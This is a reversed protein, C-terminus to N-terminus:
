GSLEDFIAGRKWVAVNGITGAMTLLVQGDSVRSKKLIQDVKETISLVPYILLGTVCM